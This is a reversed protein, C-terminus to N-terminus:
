TYANTSQNIANFIINLSERSAMGYKQVYKERFKRTVEMRSKVDINMISDLLIEETKIDENELEKRIDFYLGREEQYRNYDYAFCFMPKGLIAYDFFISSYDSILIDSVIMLDNLQPYSSVDMIFGNEHINLSKVVAHHARLLLIYNDGLANKWKDWCLPLNLVCDVGNREYERFTPAYLIIKKKRPISLRDKIADVKNSDTSGVLEDNRPLGIVKIRERSLGFAQSFIVQDYEGQALYIDTYNKGKSIFRSKGIANKGIKKIATGHWTNLSFTNIGKFNLARTMTTNTVWVRARLVAIFYSWTDIKVIKGKPIYFNSPDRFAWVFSYDAFRPDEIMKLYIAKPSDGYRRGGFSNFVILKDNPSLFFKLVRIAVNAGYYYINYLLKSHKVVNIMSSM